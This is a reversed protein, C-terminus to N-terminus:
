KAKKAKALAKAQKALKQEYSKNEVAIPDKRYAVGITDLCANIIAQQGKVRVNGGKRYVMCRGKFYRAHANVFMVDGLEFAKACEALMKCVKTNSLGIETTFDKSCDIGTDVIINRMKQFAGKWGDICKSPALMVLNGKDNTKFMAGGFYEKATKAVLNEQSM